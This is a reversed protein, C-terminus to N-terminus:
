ENNSKGIDAEHRFAVNSRNPWDTADVPQFRWANRVKLKRPPFTPWSGRGVNVARSQAGSLLRERAASPAHGM